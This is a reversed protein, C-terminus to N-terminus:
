GDSEKYLIDCEDMFKKLEPNYYEYDWDLTIFHLIDNPNKEFYEGLELCKNISDPNNQIICMLFYAKEDIGFLKIIDEKKMGTYGFEDTEIWSDEIIKQIYNDKTVDDSFLNRYKEDIIGNAKIIFSSSSSNTVFGYRIKM